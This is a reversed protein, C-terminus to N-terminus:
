DVRVFIVCNKEKSITNFKGHNICKDVCGEGTIIEIEEGITLDLKNLIIHAQKPTIVGFYHGSLTQEASGNSLCLWTGSKNIPNSSVAFNGGLKSKPTKDKFSMMGSFSLHQWFQNAESINKIFGDGDGNELQYSINEQAESYDGPLYNYRDRFMEIATKIQRIQTCVSHIKAEELLSQGKLVVATLVGIITIAIAVELLSFGKDNKFIKLFTILKQFLFM